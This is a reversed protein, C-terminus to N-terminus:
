HGATRDLSCHARGIMSSKDAFYIILLDILTFGRDINSSKELQHFGMPINSHNDKEVTRVNIELGTHPMTFLAMPNM